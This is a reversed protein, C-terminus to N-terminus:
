FRTMPINILAGSAVALAGKRMPETWRNTQRNTQRVTQRDGSHTCLFAIREFDLCNVAIIEISRYSTVYTKSFAMLPGRFNLIASIRWRSLRSIANDWRFIIWSLWTVLYSLKLFELHRDAATKFIMKPWVEAASQGIKTFHQMAFCNKVSNRYHSLYRCEM